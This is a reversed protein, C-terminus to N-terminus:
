IALGVLSALGPTGNLEKEVKSQDDAHARCEEEM